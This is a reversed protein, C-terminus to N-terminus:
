NQGNNKIISLLMKVAKKPSNTSAFKVNQREDLYKGALKKSWGEETTLLVVPKKNRYAIALEQLTGAGGGVGILGDCMLVLIAEEGCGQMGSVVEIDVFKNSTFRKSGCVVGVTIGSMDKAGKSANEMIGGKGGTILVGKEQAITKGLEYALKYIESSPVKNKTYEEPGASGVVGIQIKRTDMKRM